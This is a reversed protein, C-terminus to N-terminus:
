RPTPLFDRVLPLLINFGQSSFENLGVYSLANLLETSGEIVKVVALSGYSLARIPLKPSETRLSWGRFVRVDGFTSLVKLRLSTSGERLIIEDGAVLPRPAPISSKTLPELTFTPGVVELVLYDGKRVDNVSRISVEKVNVVKALGYGRGVGKGISIVANGRRLSDMVKCMVSGDICSVLGCYTTGSEVYEYGFLIGPASSRRLRDIGVGVYSGSLGSVLDKSLRWSNGVKIVSNGVVRETNVSSRLEDGRIDMRKTVEMILNALIDKPTLTSSFEKFRRLLEDIGLSFVSGDGLGEKFMLSLAHAVMVNDYMLSSESPTLLFTTVSYKPSLSEAVVEDRSVIGERIGWTLLSGRMTSGPIKDTVGSYMMGRYGEKVSILAPTLFKIVVNFVRM